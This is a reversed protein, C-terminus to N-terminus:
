LLLMNSVCLNIVSGWLGAETTVASKMHGHFGFFFFNHTAIQSGNTMV